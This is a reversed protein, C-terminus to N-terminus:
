LVRIDTIQVEGDPSAILEASLDSPSEETTWLPVVLHWGGSDTRVADCGAHEWLENPQAILVAGGQGYQRVWTLLEPLQGQVLRDLQRAVAPRLHEPIPTVGPIYHRGRGWEHRKLRMCSNCADPM